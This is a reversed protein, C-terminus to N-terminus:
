DHLGSENYFPIIKLNQLENLKQILWLSLINLFQEVM